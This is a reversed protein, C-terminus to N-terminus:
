NEVGALPVKRVCAIDKDKARELMLKSEQVFKESDFIFRAWCTSM